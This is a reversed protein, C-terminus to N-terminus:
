GDPKHASMTHKRGALPFGVKECGDDEGYQLLGMVTSVVNCFRPRRRAVRDKALLSTTRICASMRLLQRNQLGTTQQYFHWHATNTVVATRTVMAAVMM